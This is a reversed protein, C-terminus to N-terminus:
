AAASLGSDCSFKKRLVTWCMSWSVVNWKETVCGVWGEAFIPTFLVKLQLIWAAYKRWENSFSQVSTGSVLLEANNGKLFPNRMTHRGMKLRQKALSDKFEPDTTLHKGKQFKESSRQEEATYSLHKFCKGTETTEQYCITVSIFHVVSPATSLIQHTIHSIIVFAQLYSEALNQLFYKSPPYKDKPIVFLIHRHMWVKQCCHGSKRGKEM